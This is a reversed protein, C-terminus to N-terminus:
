TIKKMYIILQSVNDIITQRLLPDVQLIIQAAGILCGLINVILGVSPYNPPIEAVLGQKPLSGFILQPLHIKHFVLETNSGQM